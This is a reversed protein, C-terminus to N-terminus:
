SGTVGENVKERTENYTDILINKLIAIRDRDEALQEAHESLEVFKRQWYDAREQEVRCQTATSYPVTSGKNLQVRLSTIRRNLNDILNAQEENAHAIAKSANDQITQINKTVENAKQQADLIENIHDAKIQQIEQDALMRTCSSGIFVGAIFLLYKIGDM